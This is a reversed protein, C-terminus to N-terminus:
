YYSSLWAKVSLSWFDYALWEFLSLNFTLTPKNKGKNNKIIQEHLM